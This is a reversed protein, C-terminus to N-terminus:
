LLEEQQQKEEDAGAHSTQWKPFLRTMRWEWCCLKLSRQRRPPHPSHSCGPLFGPARTRARCVCEKTHEELKGCVRSIEIPTNYNCEYPRIAIATAPIELYLRRRRQPNQHLRYWRSVPTVSHLSNRAKKKNKRHSLIWVTQPIVSPAQAGRFASRRHLAMSSYRSCWGTACIPTIPCIHCHGPSNAPPSYCLLLPHECRALRSSLSLTNHEEAECPIADCRMANGRAAKGEGGSAGEGRGRCVYVRQELSPFFSFLLPSNQSTSVRPSPITPQCRAVASSCLLSRPTTRSTCLTVWANKIASASYLLTWLPNREPRWEHQYSCPWEM